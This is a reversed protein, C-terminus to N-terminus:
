LTVAIRVPSLSGPHAKHGVSPFAHPHLGCGLLGAPVLIIGLWALRTHPVRECLVIWAQASHKPTLFSPSLCIELRSSAVDCHLCDQPAVPCIACLQSDRPPLPSGPDQFGPETQLGFLTPVLLPCLELHFWFSCVRCSPPPGLPYRSYCEFWSHPM